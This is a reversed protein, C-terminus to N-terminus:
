EVAVERRRQEFDVYLIVRLFLCSQGVVHDIETSVRAFTHGCQKVALRSGQSASPQSIVASGRCRPLNSPLAMGPDTTMAWSSGSNTSFV